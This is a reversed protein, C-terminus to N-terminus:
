GPLPEGRGPGCQPYDPRARSCGRRRDLQLKLKRYISALEAGAPDFLVEPAFSEAMATKIDDATTTNVFDM